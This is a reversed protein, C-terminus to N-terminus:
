SRHDSGLSASRSWLRTVQVHELSQCLTSPAPTLVAATALQVRLRILQNLSALNSLHGNSGTVELPQLTVIHGV